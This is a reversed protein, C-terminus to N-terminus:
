TTPFMRVYVVKSYNGAFESISVIGARDGRKGGAHAMKNPGMYIGVHYASKSGNYFFAVIDGIKPTKVPTGESVQVSARHELNIGIQSYFWMTLGSCDFGSPTSGSFVYWPKNKLVVRLKSFAFNLARSNAELALSHEIVKVSNLSLHEAGRSEGSTPVVTFGIVLMTIIMSKLKKMSQGQRETTKLEPTM